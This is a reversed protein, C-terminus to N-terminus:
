LNVGHAALGAVPDVPDGGGAPRLELHLHDGTVNGTAGVLGIVTQNNVASGVSVNIASLHCYWTETGDTHEVIIKNGYAGDYGAFTVKGPGVSRVPTGTVANLDVGTHSGSSWLSSVAGYVASISYGNIPAGWQADLRAQIREQRCEEAARERAEKRAIRRAEERRLERMKKKAQIEISEIRDAGLLVRSGASRSSIVNQRSAMVAATSSWSVEAEGLDVTGAGGDAVASTIGGSTALALAAVPVLATTKRRRRHRPKTRQSGPTAARKITDARHKALDALEKEEYTTDRGARRRPVFHIL